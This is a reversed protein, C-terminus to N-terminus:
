LHRGNYTLHVTDSFRPFAGIDKHTGTYALNFSAENLSFYRLGHSATSLPQRVRYTCIRGTVASREVTPWFMTVVSGQRLDRFHRLQKVKPYKEAMGHGIWCCSRFWV